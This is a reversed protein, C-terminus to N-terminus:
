RGGSPPCSTRSIVSEHLEGDGGAGAEILVSDGYEHNRFDHATMEEQARRLAEDSGFARLLQYHSTEPEHVGSLVASVVRLRTTPGIRQNAVGPGPHVTGDGRAAHELARVVTTGVAVIRRAESRARHIARATPTPIDYPEDFPLRADLSADGTSSIGAAHTLTAFAIHRTRLAALMRWDLVFGASPPEFAVPPGAIVTWVDWLALPVSLHGYQIPRGHRALGSWIADPTGDFRLSILRPHDLTKQVTASLPGLELRDGPALAPPLPRDETRTHFDGEGFVVAAFEKIDDPDLSRRGALRVEITRGTPLHTGPLSAPLTAADNAVLLDGAHLVDIVADRWTHTVHGSADLVLLKAHPPRQIPQDAAAIV